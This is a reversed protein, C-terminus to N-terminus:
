KAPKLSYWCPYSVELEGLYSEQYQQGLGGAFGSLQPRLSTGRSLHPDLSAALNYELIRTETSQEYAPLVLRLFDSRSTYFFRADVLNRDVLSSEFLKWFMSGINNRAILDRIAPFNRCFIKGTCKFFSDSQKLLQSSEVAFKVLQGEAFGKGRQFLLSEDQKFALQEIRVDLKRIAALEEPTLVSSATADCIVISKQGQGVWFFIAAKTTISRMNSDTMRLAPTNAPPAIASTILITPFM